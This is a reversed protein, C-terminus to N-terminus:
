ATPVWRGVRGTGARRVVAPGDLIAAVEPPVAEGALRALDAYVTALTLPQHLPAPIGEAELDAVLQGMLDAISIM